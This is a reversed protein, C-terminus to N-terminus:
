YFIFLNTSLIFMINLFLLGGNIIIFPISYKKIISIILYIIGIIIGPLTIAELIWFIIVFMEYNTGNGIQVQEVFLSIFGIFNIFASVSLLVLTIISFVLNNKRM